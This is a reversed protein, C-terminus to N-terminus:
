KLSLFGSKKLFPVTVIRQKVMACKKANVRPTFVTLVIAPEALNQKPAYVSASLEFNREVGHFSIQHLFTDMM